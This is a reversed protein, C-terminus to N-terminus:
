EVANHLISIEAGSESFRESSLNVSIALIIRSSVWKKEYDNTSTFCFSAVFIELMKIVFMVTKFSSPWPGITIMFVSQVFVKWLLEIKCLVVVYSHQCSCSGELVYFLLVISYLSVASVSAVLRWYFRASSYFACCLVCTCCVSPWSSLFSKAVSYPASAANIVNCLALSCLLNGPFFYLCPM